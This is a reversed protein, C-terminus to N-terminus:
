AVTSPAPFKAYEPEVVEIGLPANEALTRKLIPHRTTRDQYYYSRCLGPTGDQEWLYDPGSDGDFYDYYATGDTVMVKDITFAEASSFTLIEVDSTAVFTTYIRGKAAYGGGNLSIAAPGSVEASATYTNGPVLDSVRHYGTAACDLGTLAATVGSWIDATTTGITGTGRPDTSYNLRTPRVNVLLRRPSRYDSPGTEDPSLVEMQFADFYQAANTTMMKPVGGNVVPVVYRAEQPPYFTMHYRNWGDVMPATDTSVVDLRLFTVPDAAYQFDPFGAYKWVAFDEFGGLLAPRPLFVSNRGLLFAGQQTLTIASLDYIKISGRRFRTGATNGLASAVAFPGDSIPDVLVDPTRGFINPDDGVARGGAVAVQLRSRNLVYNVPDTTLTGRRGLRFNGRAYLRILDM